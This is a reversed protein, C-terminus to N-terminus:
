GRNLVATMEWMTRKAIDSWSISAAFKSAAMSMAALHAPEASAASSIASLLAPIGGEYRIVANNPLDATAALNPVILPRGHTLALMASGSTTVRRFPLVVVDAAALLRALEAEPIHQLRM